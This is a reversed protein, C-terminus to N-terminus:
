KPLILLSYESHGTNMNLISYNLSYIPKKSQQMLIITKEFKNDYIVNTHICM